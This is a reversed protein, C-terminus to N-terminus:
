RFPVPRGLKRAVLKSGAGTFKADFIAGYLFALNEAFLAL